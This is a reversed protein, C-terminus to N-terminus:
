TQRNSEKSGKMVNVRKGIAEMIMSSVLVKGKQRRM